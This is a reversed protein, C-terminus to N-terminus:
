KPVVKVTLAVPPVAYDKKNIQIAPLVKAAAMGPAAAEEAVIKLTFESEEPKLTVPEAKTGAPLGDIKITVPEKYTGKRAIKGKVEVTEGQKIDISPVAVELTLPRVINLTIAPVILTRDEDKLKGKATLAVTMVGLPVEPGANVTITAESVKEAMTVSPATLGAILVQGAVLPLPAIALPGDADQARKATVVFTSGTGHAIEIPTAPGDLTAPQAVSTAAFLGRQEASNTALTAQQAFVITISSFQKFAGGEGVVDLLVPGFDAADTASVTFVGVLQGENIIGPRVTIGVPPNALNLTIPGTYGSRLVTVPIAANGGKPISIQADSTYLEFGSSALEVRIRYPYGIGGRNQLDRLALTIETVNAPVTFELAPDPSVITPARRNKPGAPTATTDDATALVADKDGLIQLTGDIASGLDAATVDIRLKQGPVVVLTFRDEDGKPDIRGNFIVPAVAKIPRANPDAPERLEPLDDVVLAPISEVDLGGFGPSKIRALNQGTPPLMTTAVTTVGELTGGRLEVGITEGRRGGQPYVEEAVPISGILLRYVARNAGQYRSDSLEIIYDTDEPLTAILRADTLLGPTDDASAVFARGVTTLRISPDVGSGIRACQADVVIRQGKKGTFKFYDVDNGAAQGEVVAPTPVVQATEFSSNDEKEQVQPVQGVAFLFPNSLGDLSRVRIPYIGVPTEPAVTLKFTFKAAEAKVLEVKAAFPAIWQPEAGLRTGNIQIETTEGRPAGLPSIADIKPAQALLPSTTPLTGVVCLVVLYRRLNM